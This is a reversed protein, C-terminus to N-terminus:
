VELFGDANRAPYANVSYDIVVDSSLEQDGGTKRDYVYAESRVSPAGMDNEGEDNVRHARAENDTDKYRM